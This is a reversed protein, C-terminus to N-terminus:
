EFESVTEEKMYTRNLFPNYTGGTFKADCHSCVWIGAAERKVSTHHCYPCEHRKGKMTDVTKIRKRIRVGYRPGFKGAIGIKKTRRAM